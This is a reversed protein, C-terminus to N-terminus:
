NIKPNKYVLNLQTIQAMQNALKIKLHTQSPGPGMQSWKQFFGLDWNKARWIAGWGLWSKEVIQNEPPGKPGQSWKELFRRLIGCGIIPIFGRISGM